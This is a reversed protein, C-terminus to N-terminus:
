GIANAVLAALRNQGAQSLHIGDPAHLSANYVAGGFATWADVYGTKTGGVRRYADNLLPMQATRPPYDVAPNLVWLFRAGRKMLLRQTLRASKTWHRLFKPATRKLVPLKTCPPYFLYNGVYEVVVIDPDALSTLFRQWQGNCHDADLLGTGGRGAKIVQYGRRTLLTAAEDQYSETISDGLLLVRPPGPRRVKDRNVAHAPSALAVVLVLATLVAIAGARKGRAM